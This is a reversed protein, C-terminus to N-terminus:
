TKPLNIKRLLDMIIVLSPYAGAWTTVQLLTSNTIDKIYERMYKVNIWM